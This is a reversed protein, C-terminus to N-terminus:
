GSQEVKFVHTKILAAEEECSLGPFRTRILSEAEQVDNLMYFGRRKLVSQFHQLTMINVDTHASVDCLANCFIKSSTKPTINAMKNELRM